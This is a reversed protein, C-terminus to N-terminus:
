HKSLARNIENLTDRKAAYGHVKAWGEPDKEAAPARTAKDTAALEAISGTVSSKVIPDLSGKFDIVLTVLQRAARKWSDEASKRKFLSMEQNKRAETAGAAGAEMVERKAKAQEVLSTHLEEAEAGSLAADFAQQFSQSWAADDSASKLQANASALSESKLINPIRSGAEKSSSSSSNSIADWAASAAAGLVASIVRDKIGM